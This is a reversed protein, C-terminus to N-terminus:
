EEDLELCDCENLFDDFGDPQGYRCGNSYHDEVDKDRDLFGLIAERVEKATARKM